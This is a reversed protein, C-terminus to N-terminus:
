ANNRADKEAILQGLYFMIFDFKESTNLFHFAPAKEGLYNCMKMLREESILMSVRQKQGRWSKREERFKIISENNINITNTM